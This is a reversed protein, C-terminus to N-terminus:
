STPLPSPSCQRFVSPTDALFRALNLTVARFGPASVVFDPEAKDFHAPQVTVQLFGVVTLSIRALNPPAAGRGSSRARREREGAQREACLRRLQGLGCSGSVQTSPLPRGGQGFPVPTPKLNSPGPVGDQAYSSGEPVDLFRHPVARTVATSAPPRAARLKFRARLHRM